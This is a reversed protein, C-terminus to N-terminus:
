MDPWQQPIDETVLPKHNTFVCHTNKGPVGFMEPCIDSCRKSALATGSPLVGERPPLSSAAPRTRPRVLRSKPPKFILDTFICRLLIYSDLYSCSSFPVTSPEQEIQVFITPPHPPADSLCTLLFEVLCCSVFVDLWRRYSEWNAKQGSLSLAVGM